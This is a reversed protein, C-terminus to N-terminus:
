YLVKKKNKKITLVYRGSKNMKVKFSKGIEIKM